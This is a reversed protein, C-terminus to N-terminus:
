SVDITLVAEIAPSDSSSPLGSPVLAVLQLRTGSTASAPIQLVQLPLNAVAAATPSAIALPALLTYPAFAQVQEPTLLPGLSSAYAPVQVAGAAGGPAGAQPASGTPSSSMGPNAPAGQDATAGQPGGLAVAGQDHLTVCPVVATRDGGTSTLAAYILVQSGPAFHSATTAIVLREGPRKPSTASVETAFGPPASPAAAGQPVVALPLPCTGIGARPATKASGANGGAAAHAAGPSADRPAQSLASTSSTGGGSTARVVVVALVIAAAGLTGASWAPTLTPRPLWAPLPLALRRREPQPPTAPLVVRQPMRAAPLAHVADIAQRFREAEAACETCAALHDDYRRREAPTLADDYAASFLETVHRTGM